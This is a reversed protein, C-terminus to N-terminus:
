QANFSQLIATLVPKATAKSSPNTWAAVQYLSTGAKVYRIYFVIKVGSSEGTVEFDKVSLENPNAIGYLPTIVANTLTQGSAYNNNVLDAYESVTLTDSFDSTSEKIVMVYENELDSGQSYIADASRYQEEIEAFYTPVALSFGQGEDTRTETAGISMSSDFLNSAAKTTDANQKVAFILLAFLLIGILTFIMLVLNAIWGIRSLVPSQGAKKAKSAGVLGLIFGPLHLVLFVMIISIIGFVDTFDKPQGVPPVPPHPASPIPPQPPVPPQVPPPTPENMPVLIDPTARLM